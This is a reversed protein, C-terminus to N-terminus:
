FMKIVSDILLILGIIPLIYKFFFLAIQIDTKIYLDITERTAGCHRCCKFDDDLPFPVVGKKCVPCKITTFPLNGKITM